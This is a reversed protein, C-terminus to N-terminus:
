GGLIALSPPPDRLGKLAWAEVAAAFEASAIPGGGARLQECASEALSSAGRWQGARAKVAAAAVQILGGLLLRDPSGHVAARWLPEWAEHAEWPFGHNYLDVGFRFAEDSALDSARRPPPDPAHPPRQERPSVGPIYARAPLPRSPAYRHRAAGIQIEDARSV